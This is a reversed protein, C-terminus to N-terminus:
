IAQPIQVKLPTKVVALRELSLNKNTKRQTVCSDGGFSLLEGELRSCYNGWSYGM